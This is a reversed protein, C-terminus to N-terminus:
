GKMVTTFTARFRDDLLHWINLYEICFLSIAIMAGGLAVMYVM